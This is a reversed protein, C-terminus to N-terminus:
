AVAKLKASLTDYYVPLKEKHIYKKIATRADRKGPQILGKRKLEHHQPLVPAMGVELAEKILFNGLEHRRDDNGTDLFEHILTPSVHSLDQEIAYKVIFSGIIRRRYDAPKDYYARETCLKKPSAVRDFTDEDMYVLLDDAPRRLDIAWRSVVGACAKSVTIFQEELTEPLEPGLLRKHGLEHTQRPLLQGRSVRVALAALETLTFSEPAQVSDRFHAPLLLPHRRPFFHHHYDWFVDEHDQSQLPLIAYPLGTEPDTPTRMEAAM